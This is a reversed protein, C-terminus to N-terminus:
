VYKKPVIGKIGYSVNLVIIMPMALVVSFVVTNLFVQIFISSEDIDNYSIGVGWAVIVAIIVAVIVSVFIFIMVQKVNNIQPRKKAIGYWLVYAAYTGIFNSVFGAWSSIMFTGGLIDAILNGFACALAGYVGFMLGFLMNLSDVPRIETFGPVLNMVKFPIALLVFIGSLFLMLVIKNDFKIGNM